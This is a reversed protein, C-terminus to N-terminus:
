QIKTEAVQAEQAKEVEEQEVQAKDEEHMEELRESSGEQLLISKAFAESLSEGYALIRYGAYATLATVALEAVGGLLVAAGFGLSGGIVAGMYPHEHLADWLSTGIGAVGGEISLLAENGCTFVSGLWSTTEAGTAASTGNAM